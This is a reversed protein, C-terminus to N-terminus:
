RMGAGTAVPATAETSAPQTVYDRVKPLVGDRRGANTATDAHGRLPGGM